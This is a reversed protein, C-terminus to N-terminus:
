KLVYTKVKEGLYGDMWDQIDRVAGGRWAYSFSGGLQFSPLASLAGLETILELFLWPLLLPLSWRPAAASRFFLWFVRKPEKERRQKVYMCFSSLSSKQM